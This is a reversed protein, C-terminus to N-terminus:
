ATVHCTQLRATDDGAHFGSKVNEGIGALWVLSWEINRDDHRAQQPRTDDACKLGDERLLAPQPDLDHDPQIACWSLARM